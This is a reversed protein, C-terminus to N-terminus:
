KLTLIVYIIGTLIGSLHGLFSIGPVLIQPLIEAIQSTSFSLFRGTKLFENIIILSFLVGSFGIAIRKQDLINHAVYLLISSGIWSFILIQILQKTTKTHESLSNLQYLTFMNALLHQIDGHYLTRVLYNLPEFDFPKPLQDGQIAFIISFLAILSNIIM